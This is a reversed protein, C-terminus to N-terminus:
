SRHWDEEIKKYRFSRWPMAPSHLPDTGPIWVWLGPGSFRLESFKVVISCALGLNVRIKFGLLFDQFPLNPKLNGEWAWVQNGSFARSAWSLRSPFIHALGCGQHPPLLSSHAAPLTCNRKLGLNM